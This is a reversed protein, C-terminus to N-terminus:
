GNTLQERYWKRWKRSTLGSACVTVWFCLLGRHSVKVLWHIWVARQRKPSIQLLAFNQGHNLGSDREESGVLRTQLARAHNADWWALDQKCNASSRRHTFDTNRDVKPFNQDNNQTTTKKSEMGVKEEKEPVTYTNVSWDQGDTSSFNEEVNGERNKLNSLWQQYTWQSKRRDGEIKQWAELSKTM